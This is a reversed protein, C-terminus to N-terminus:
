DLLQSVEGDSLAATTVAEVARKGATVVSVSSSHTAAIRKVADIGGCSLVAVAHSPTMAMEGVCTLMRECLEDSSTENCVSLVANVAPTVTERTAAPPLRSV